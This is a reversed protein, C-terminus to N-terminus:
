EHQDISVRISGDRFDVTTIAGAAEAREIEDLTTQLQAYQLNLFRNVAGSETENLVGEFRIGANAYVNMRQVLPYASTADGPPPSLSAVLAEEVLVNVLIARTDESLGSATANVQGAFSQRLMQEPLGEEYEDFESLEKPSLIEALEEKMWASRDIDDAGDSSSADVLVRLLAERIEMEREPAFGLNALFPGYRRELQMEAMQVSMGGRDEVPDDARASRSAASPAALQAAEDLAASMTAIQEEQSSVVDRLNNNEMQLAEARKTTESIGDSLSSSSPIPDAKSVQVPAGKPSRNQLVIVSSLIVVFIWPIVMAVKKM